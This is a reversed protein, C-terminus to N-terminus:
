CETKIELEIRHSYHMKSKPQALNSVLLAFKPLVFYVHPKLTQILQM